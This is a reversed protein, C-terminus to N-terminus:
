IFNMIGTQVFEDMKLVSASVNKNNKKIEAKESFIEYNDKMMEFIRKLDLGSHRAFYVIAENLFTRLYEDLHNTCVSLYNAGFREANHAISNRLRYLRRIQWSVRQHYTEVKDIMASDNSALLFMERCRIKLLTNVSCLGELATYNNNDRLAAIINKVQEDRSKAGALFDDLNINCRRCDSIFNYFLRYIYRICMGASVAEIINLIIEDSVDSKCFSEFGIWFNMFREEFSYSRKGMNIYSLASALRRTIETDSDKKLINRASTYVKGIEMPRYDYSGFLKDERVWSLKYSSTDLVGWLAGRINWAKIRNYVGLLNFLLSIKRVAELSASYIDYSHVTIEIYNQRTNFNEPKDTNPFNTRLEGGNIVAFGMTNIERLNEDHISANRNERVTNDEICLPFYVKYEHVGQTIHAKFQEWKGPNCESNNLIRIAYYLASPHWGVNVCCSVLIEACTIIRNQEGEDIAAELELFLNNMYDPKIVELAYEALYLRAHKKSDKKIDNDNLSGQSNVLAGLIVSYYKELVPDHNLTEVAEKLCEVVSANSSADNLSLAIVSKVEELCSVSNMLSYRYSSMTDTHLLESWIQYFLHYKPAVRYETTMKEDNYALVQLVEM